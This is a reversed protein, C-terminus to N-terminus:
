WKNLYDIIDWIAKDNSHLRGRNLIIWIKNREDARAKQMLELVDKRLFSEKPASETYKDIIKNDNM